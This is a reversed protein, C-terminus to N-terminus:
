FNTIDTGCGRGEFAGFHVQSTEDAPAGALPQHIGFAFVTHGPDSTSLTFPM